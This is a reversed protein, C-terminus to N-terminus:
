NRSVLGSGSIFITQALFPATDNKPCVPWSEVENISITVHFTGSLGKYSGTGSGQMIPATGIVTQLGSCTTTNTPFDSGIATTLEKEVDVVDLGFSGRSLILELEGDRAGSSNMRMARGYDGIVGTLVVFSTPGDNDSYASLNVTGGERPVHPGAAAVPKTGKAGASVPGAVVLSAALAACLTALAYVHRRM